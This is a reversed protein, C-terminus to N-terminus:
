NAEKIIEREFVMGGGMFAGIFVHLNRCREAGGQPVHGERVGERRRVGKRTMNEARVPAVM